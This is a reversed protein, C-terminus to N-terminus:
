CLKARAKALKTNRRVDTMIVVNMRLTSEDLTIQWLFAM